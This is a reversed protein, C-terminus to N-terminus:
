RTRTSPFPGRAGTLSGDSTGTLTHLVGCRAAYLDLATVKLPTRPLLYTEVWWVFKTRVGAKPDEATLAAAADLGTCTLVFTPVLRRNALCLQAAEVLETLERRASGIPDSM